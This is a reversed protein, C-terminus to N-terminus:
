IRWITPMRNPLNAVRARLEGWIVGFAARLPRAQRGLLRVLVLGNVQTAGISAGGATELVSELRRVADVAGKPDTTQAIITACAGAGGLTSPQHLAAQMQAAGCDGFRLADKWLLRGDQRRVDWGDFVYGREFPEGKAARGFAIMEGALLSASGDITLRTRRRMRAGDFVIAEQPLWELYADASVDLRAEIEANPGLSRYIKEPAQGIVCARAGDEVRVDVSLRDGGALGGSVCTLIASPPEGHATIPLLARLPQRHYLDKLVTRGDSLRQFAIRAAGDARNQRELPLDALSLAVPARRSRHGAAGTTQMDMLADYSKGDASFVEGLLREFLRFSGTNPAARNIMLAHPVPAAVHTQGAVGM